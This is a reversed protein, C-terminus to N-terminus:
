GIRPAPSAVVVTIAGAIAFAMKACVPTLNRLTGNVAAEMVLASRTAPFPQDSRTGIKPGFRTASCTSNMAQLASTSAKSIFSISYRSRLFTAMSLRRSRMSSVNVSKKVRRSTSNLTSNNSARHAIAPMIRVAREHRSAVSISRNSPIKDGIMATILLGFRGTRAAGEPGSLVSPSYTKVAVHAGITALQQQALVAIRTIMESSTSTVIVLSLPESNRSRFNGQLHWGAAELESNPLANDHRYPTATASRWSIVTSPFISQAIPYVGRWAKSLAQVDLAHSIASRVSFDRTPEAATQLYFAVEGNEPTRVIQLTDIREAQEVNDPTLVAVDVERTQLATFATMQNPVIRIVIKQLKPHPAYYPNPELVIRDGHEWETVRFPGTGFAHQDWSSGTIKSNTFAHAPLIGYAEDAEAFLVRVAAAWPERLKIVVTHADPTRLSAIRLYDGVSPTTNSPDLIARYTFAVDASTFPVGDAFRVDRRLRYTITLGDSSIDGNLRTPIRTALIPIFRNHEDLGVLTQCWFLDLAIQDQAFAYLPSLSTPDIPLAIRLEHQPLTRPSCGALSGLVTLAVGVM